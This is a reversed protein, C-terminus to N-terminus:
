IRQSSPAPFFVPRVDRRLDPIYTPLRAADLLSIHGAEANVFVADFLPSDPDQRSLWEQDLLAANCFRGVKRPKLDEYLSLYNVPPNSDVLVTSTKAGAMENLLRRDFYYDAGLVLARDGTGSALTNLSLSIDALNVPRNTQREFKLCLKARAWSNETVRQRTSDSCLITVERLGIRELVRLLRELLSIGCLISFTKPDEALVFVRPPPSNM